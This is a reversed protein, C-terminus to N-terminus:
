RQQSIDSLQREYLSPRSIPDGPLIDGIKRPGDVHSSIVEFYAVAAEKWVMEM